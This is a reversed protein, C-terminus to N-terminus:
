VPRSSRGISVCVLAEKRPRSVGYTRGIKDTPSTYRHQETSVRATRVMIEACGDGKNPISGLREQGLVDVRGAAHGGALSALIELLHVAHQLVLM